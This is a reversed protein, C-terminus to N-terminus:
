HRDIIVAGPSEGWGQAESTFLPVRDAREALHPDEIGLGYIRESM